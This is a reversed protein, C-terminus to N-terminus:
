STYVNLNIFSVPGLGGARKRVRQQELRLVGEGRWLVEVGKGKEM